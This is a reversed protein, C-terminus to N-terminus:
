PREAGGDHDPPRFGRCRFISFWDITQDYARSDLIELRQVSACVAHLPAPADWTGSTVFLGDRGALADLGGWTDYQNPRRGFDINYTQPKGATYFALESTIQYRDSMLFPERGALREAAVSRGVATGLERWGYLLRVAPHSRLPVQVGSAPLLGPFLAVVTTASGPLLVVAIALVRRRRQRLTRVGDLWHDWSRALLVCGTGYAAAAWNAQVKEAISWLVFFTLVPGSFAFLLHCADRDASRGPRAAAAVAYGVAALLLPSVVGAQSGIFNFLTAASAPTSDAALGAQWLVHHVSGWGHATNWVVLPAAFLAAVAFGAYPEKRAPWARARPSLAAYVALCPLLLLMTYKALLGLGFATGFVLWWRQRPEREDDTVRELSFVALTWCFVWAVDTTMLMAGAAYLPCASLSLLALWAARDSRFLRRTLAYILLATAFSLLIAPLRVFLETTGGLRTSVAILYPVLPGKSYYSWDLRRSWDWYQAEDPALGVRVSAVYWLQFVTVAALWGLALLRYTRPQAMACSSIMAAPAGPPAPPAAPRDSVVSVAESM